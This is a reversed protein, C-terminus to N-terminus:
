RCSRGRRGLCGAEEQVEEQGEQGDFGSNDGIWTLTCTVCRHSASMTHVRSRMFVLGVMMDGDDDEDAAGAAGNDELM